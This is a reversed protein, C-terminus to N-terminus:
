TLRHHRGQITLFTTLVGDVHSWIVALLAVVLFHCTVIHCPMLLHSLIHSKILLFFLCMEITANSYKVCTHIHPFVVGAQRSNKGNDCSTLKEQSRQKLM